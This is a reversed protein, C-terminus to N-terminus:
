SVGWASRKRYLTSPSVDLVHAAKTVSGDCRRITAEIVAREIDALSRGAPVWDGEEWAGAEAEAGQDPPGADDSGAAAPARLGPGIVEEPLMDVEVAGGSNM